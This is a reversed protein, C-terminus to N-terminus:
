LDTENCPESYHLKTAFYYRINAKYKGLTEVTHWYSKGNKNAMRSTQYKFVKIQNERVVAEHMMEAKFANFENPSMTEKAADLTSKNDMYAKSGARMKIKGIYPIGTFDGNEIHHQADKELQTIFMLAVEKDLINDDICKLISEKNEILVMRGDPAPFKNEELGDENLKGKM